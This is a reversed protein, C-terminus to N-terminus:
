YSSTQSVSQQRLKPLDIGLRALVDGVHSKAVQQISGDKLRAAWHRDKHILREIFECRILASRHVRVFKDGGLKGAMDRMTTHVLWSDCGAHVRMYDGEATVKDIRSRDIRQMGHACPVWVAGDEEDGSVSVFRKCVFYAEHRSVLKALQERMAELWDNYAALNPLSAEIMFDFSGTLDCCSVAHSCERLMAKFAHVETPSSRHDFAICMIVRLDDCVVPCVAPV